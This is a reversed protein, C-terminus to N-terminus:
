CNPSVYTYSIKTCNKCSKKLTFYNSFLVFVFLGFFGLCLCFLPVATLHYHTTLFPGDLYDLYIIKNLIVVLTFIYCAM